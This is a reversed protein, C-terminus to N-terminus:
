VRRTPRVDYAGARPRHNQEGYQRYPSRQKKTNPCDVLSNPQQQQDDCLAACSKMM